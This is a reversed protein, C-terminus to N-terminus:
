KSSQSPEVDYVTDAHWELTYSLATAYKSSSDLHRAIYFGAGTDPNKLLTFFADKSASVALGTSSDAIWDTKYFEPSSRIFM